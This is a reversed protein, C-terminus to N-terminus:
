FEQACVASCTNDMSLVDHHIFAKVNKGRIFNKELPLDQKGQHLIM